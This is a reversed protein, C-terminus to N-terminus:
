LMVCQNLWDDAIVVDGAPRVVDLDAIGIPNGRCGPVLEVEAVLSVRAKDLGGDGLEIRALHGADLAYLIRRDPDYALKWVETFRAQTAPIARTTLHTPGRAQRRGRDLTAPGIPKGARVKARGDGWTALVNGAADEVVIQTWYSKFVLGGADDTAIAEAPGDFWRAVTEITYASTALPDGDGAPRLLRQGVGHHEFFHIAGTADDVALLSGFNLVAGAAPFGPGEGYHRGAVTSRLTPEAHAPSLAVGAVACVVLMRRM